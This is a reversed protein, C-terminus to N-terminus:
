WGRMSDLILVHLMSRLLLVQLFHIFNVVVYAQIPLHPRQHLAKFLPACYEFAVATTSKTERRSVFGTGPTATRGLGTFGLPKNHESDSGKRGHSRHGQRM